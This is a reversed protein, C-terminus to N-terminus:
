PDEHETLLARLAARARSVRSRITGEAVGEIVAIEGHPLDLIEALVFAVKQEVPLAALARDLREFAEKEALEDPPTRSHARHPPAAVFAPAKKKLVNLCKNRALTFLWTAFSGRRPDFARLNVFAALFVDQAVDAAEHRDGLFCGALSLLPGQYREVLLRYAETEGGLTRRIVEAEDAM